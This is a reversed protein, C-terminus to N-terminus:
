ISSSIPSLHFFPTNAHKNSLFEKSGPDLFLGQDWFRLQSQEFTVNSKNANNMEKRIRAIAVTPRLAPNQLELIQDLVQFELDQGDSLKAV